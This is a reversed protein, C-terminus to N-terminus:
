RLAMRRAVYVQLLENLEEPRIPKSLYGDMGAALYRERDGKIANATLAVISQHTGSAKEKERILTTAELGDMEPMQVDMLVLDFIGNDLAALAERGNPVVVVSHGRKQLLRTALLQNVSNDEAVLVRLSSAPDRADHLSYRTILPIAGGQPPAGLVRAIAERLESQRIPKLLYAAVGLEHCRAADGRHGASTLMMIIAMSLEPKQRIHEILSFGDMKPMHMDTLVLMYPEGAKWATSLQLLAAEGSQVSTLKMEWLKLMGELIRLNTRNDDVLLVKANRLVEPPAITGLKIPKVEGVGLRVTFHIQTGRDVESKVWIEGGMMTVLRTTITLGLGTGGFKRTTSADAQTFPDFIMKHKELPIGIGTDSVTFHFICDKGDQAQTQVNLTIEGKHTFKIANGVLNVIVQRLRSSDGRVIEPVEPAVDCLLELGKEDTRHALTKLTEELCDRLNFDVMELDIRGAEIKSFDLIDNIVNLLADGSLKVTELYERQEETLETELTLETMGIVGNLPTRIEHSMNALFESKARNAEEAADKAQRMEMGAQKRDTVEAQLEKTREQVRLELQDKARKLAGDREQIRELMQNFSGVLIGIEDNSRKTVRMSFNEQASFAVATETLERIPESIVRLLRHSLVFVVTLSGLVVFFDILVFRRLRDNLDGFDAEIYIKGISDGSLVIDQFLVMHGAVITTGNQQVTPPLPFDFHTTNRTYKAFVTGDADYICANVVHQKAQLANLIERALRTDHSSLAAASNSGIMSASAILDQTKERLYNARDYLTFLVTM